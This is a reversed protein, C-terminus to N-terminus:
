SGIVKSHANDHQYQGIILPPWSGYFELLVEDVWLNEKSIVLLAIVELNWVFALERSKIPIVTATMLDTAAQYRFPM